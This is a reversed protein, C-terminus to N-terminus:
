IKTKIKKATNLSTVIDICSRVNINTDELLTSLVNIKTDEDLTSFENKIIRIAEKDKEQKTRNVQNELNTREEETIHIREGNIYIRYIGTSDCNVEPAYFKGNWEGESESNKWSNVKVKM